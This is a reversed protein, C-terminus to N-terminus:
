KILQINFMFPDTTGGNRYDEPAKVAALIHLVFAGINAVAFVLWGLVPILLVIYSALTIGLRLLSFNLNSVHFATARADGKDKEIAWFIVAPLWGFFVSLWYNLRITTPASETTGPAPVAAYGPAPVPAVPPVDSAAPPVLPEENGNIPDSSPTSM